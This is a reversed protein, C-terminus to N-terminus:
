LVPPDGSSPPVRTCRPDRRPEAGRAPRPESQGQTQRDRRLSAPVARCCGGHGRRLSPLRRPCGRRAAPAAGAGGPRRRADGSGPEATAWHFNQGNQSNLECGATGRHRACAAASEEGSITLFSCGHCPFSAAPAPGRDAAGPSAAWTARSHGPARFEEEPPEKLANGPGDVEELRWPEGPGLAARCLGSGSPAGSELYFSFPFSVASLRTKNQEGRRAGAPSQWSVPLKFIALSDPNALPATLLTM